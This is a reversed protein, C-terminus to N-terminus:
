CPEESDGSDVLIARYSATNEEETGSTDVNRDDVSIYQLVKEWGDADHAAGVTYNRQIELTGTWTGTTVLTWGTGKYLTGLAVWSTDETTSGGTGYKDELTEQYVLTELPHTLAFLAGTQSKSTATSGSPVHGATTGAVFPAHGSATLTISGTTASAAITKTVTDNQIRFPGAQSDFAELIWDNNNFRSLKRTEYDPHTIYLVDASQEYKLEFLDATVYPTTIEYAGTGDYLG